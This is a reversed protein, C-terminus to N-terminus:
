LQALVVGIPFFLFLSLLGLPGFLVVCAIFGVVCLLLGLVKPMLMFLRASLLLVIFFTGLIVALGFGM